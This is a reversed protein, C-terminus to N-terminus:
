LLMDILKCEIFIIFFLLCLGSITTGILAYKSNTPHEYKWALFLVIGIMSFFFSLFGWAKNKKVPKYKKIQKVNCKPCINIYSLIKEGCNHCHM